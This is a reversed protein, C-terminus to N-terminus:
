DFYAEGGGGDDEFADDAEGNDFYSEVYDTADGYEEDEQFPEIEAFKEIENEVVQEVNKAKEKSEQELLQGFTLDFDFHIKRQIENTSVTAIISDDKVTHLEHPYFALDTKIDRLSHQTKKKKFQDSYRQIDSSPPSPIIFFASDKLAAKYGFLANLMKHEDESPPIPEQFEIGASTDNSLTQHLLAQLESSFNPRGFGSGSRGGFGRRGGGRARSM